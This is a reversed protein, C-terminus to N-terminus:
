SRRRGQASVEILRVLRSTRTEERRANMVWYISTQRYSPPQRNFFKWADPDARFMAEREADLSALHRNEYSYVGSRAEERRAFAALGAPMMLGQATLEAVKNINVASWNSKPKRPTFRQVRATDDMRRAISDIWGFCLAQDVAESWTMGGKGSAKHHLVVGVETATAHHEVLWARFEAPTRFFRTEM